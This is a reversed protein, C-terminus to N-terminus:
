PEAEERISELMNKLFARINEAGVPNQSHVSFTFDKADWPQDLFCLYLFEACKLGTYKSDGLDHDFCIHKPIGLEHITSKFEWFDRCIVYSDDVPFREDDLFLTYDALAM